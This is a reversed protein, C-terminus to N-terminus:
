KYLNTKKGMKILINFSILSFVSLKRGKEIKSKPKLSSKGKGIRRTKKKKAYSLIVGKILIQQNSNFRRMINQVWSMYRKFSRIIWGKFCEITEFLSSDIFKIIVSFQIYKIFLYINYNKIIYIIPIVRSLILVQSLNYFFIGFRDKNHKNKNQIRINENYCISFPYISLGILWHHSHNSTPYM